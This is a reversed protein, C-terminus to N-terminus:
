CSQLDAEITTPDSPLLIQYGLCHVSNSTWQAVLERLPGHFTSALYRADFGGTIHQATGDLCM